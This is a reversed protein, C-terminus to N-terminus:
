SVNQFLFNRAGNDYMVKVWNVMCAAVDVISASNGGTLLSSVGIDNTGLWLMYLTGQGDVKITGNKKDELFAPIQSGFLPPFPRFTIDNSCTAGSRAYPFLQVDAYGAAYVPWQTGGNSIAVIDTFSDGFTVLSKIQNRHFPGEELKGLTVAPLLLLLTIFMILKMTDTVAPTLQM